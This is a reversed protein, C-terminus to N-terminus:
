VEVPGNELENHVVTSQSAIYRIGTLRLVSGCPSMCCRREALQEREATEAEPPQEVDHEHDHAAKHRLIVGAREGPERKVSTIRNSKRDISM